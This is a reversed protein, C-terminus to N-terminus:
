YIRVTPRSQCLACTDRNARTRARRCPPSDETDADFDLVDSLDLDDVEKSRAGGAVEEVIVRGGGKPDRARRRCYINCSTPPIHVKGQNRMMNKKKRFHVM